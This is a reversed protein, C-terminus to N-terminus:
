SRREPIPKGVDWGKRRWSRLARVSAAFSCLMHVTQGGEDTDYSRGCYLFPDGPEKERVEMVYDHCLPCPGWRGSEVEEFGCEEAIQRLADETFNPVAHFHLLEDRLSSATV